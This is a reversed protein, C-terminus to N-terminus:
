YGGCCPPGYWRPFANTVFAGVRFKALINLYQQGYPTSAFANANITASLGLSLQGESINTGVGLYQNGQMTLYHALLNAFALVACCGLLQCNIMCRLADILANYQALKEPDTTIFQPAIIFLLNLIEANTISGCSAM